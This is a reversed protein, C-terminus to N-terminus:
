RSLEALVAPLGDILVHEAHVASVGDALPFTAIGAHVVVIQEIDLDELESRISPTLKPRDTRKM